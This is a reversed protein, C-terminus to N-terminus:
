VEAGPCATALIPVIRSRQPCFLFIFSLRIKVAVLTSAFVAFVLRDAKNM